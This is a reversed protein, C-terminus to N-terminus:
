HLSKVRNIRNIKPMKRLNRILDALHLRNRVQVIFRLNSFSSGDGEDVSINDINAESDAIISTIKALVGRENIVLINM